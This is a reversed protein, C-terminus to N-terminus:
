HDEGRIETRGRQLKLPRLLILHHSRLRGASNLFPIFSVSNVKSSCFFQGENRHNRTDRWAFPLSSGSSKQQRQLTRQSASRPPCYAVLEAPTLPEPGTAALSAEIMEVARASPRPLPPQAPGTLSAARPRMPCRATGMMRVARMPLAYREGRPDYLCDAASSRALATRIDAGNPINPCLYFLFQHNSLLLGVPMPFPGAWLEM